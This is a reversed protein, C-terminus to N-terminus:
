AAGQDASRLEILFSGLSELTPYDGIVAPDITLDLEDELDGCLALVQVSGLGLGSLTASPAVDEPPCGLLDAVRAVVLSRLEEERM